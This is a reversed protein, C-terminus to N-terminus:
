NDEVKPLYSGYRQHMEEIRFVYTGRLFVDHYFEYWGTVAAIKPGPFIALPSLKLRYISLVTTFVLSTVVLNLFLRTFANHYLTEFLSELHGYM